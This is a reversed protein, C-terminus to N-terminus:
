EKITPKTRSRLSRLGEPSLGMIRRVEEDSYGMEKLILYFMNHASLPTARKVKKLRNYSQYNVAAYYNNFLEKERSHWNVITRGEAIEDYLMKGQKLKPAEDDLMKRISKNLQRIAAEAERANEELRSIEQQDREERRKMERIDALAKDRNATLESIETTYAYLREQYDKERAEAKKRRMYVYFAMLVLLIALGLLLKQTTALKKDAEHMAVEHDFRLQLDKITDTKLKNLISDKISIIEDINKSVEEINGHELDYSIISHILNDKKLREGGTRLADKWLSYAKVWM